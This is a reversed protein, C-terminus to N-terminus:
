KEIFFLTNARTKSCRVVANLTGFGLEMGSSEDADLLWAADAEMGVRSWIKDELFKTLTTGNLVATLIHSLVQTDMSVYHNFTGATWVFVLCIRDIMAIHSFLGVGHFRM